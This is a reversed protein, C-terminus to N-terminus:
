YNRGGLNTYLLIGCLGLEKVAREAEKPAADLNNQAVVGVTTIRGKTQDRIDAMGQNIMSAFDACTAPDDALQMLQDLPPTPMTSIQMDIEAEDMDRLRQEVDGLRTNGREYGHQYLGMETGRDIYAKPLIHTFADIKM